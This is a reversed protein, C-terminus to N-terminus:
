DERLTLEVLVPKHDSGTESLVQASSTQITPSHLIYDIRMSPIAPRINVSPTRNAPWTFGFGFGASDFSDVLFSTLRRYDSSQENFNFDGALIVPNPENQLIEILRDIEQRRVQDDYFPFSLNSILSSQKMRVWPFTLHINYITIVAGDVNVSVKQQFVLGGDVLKFNAMNTLPYRSLIGMGIQKEDQLPGYVQYPYEDLLNQLHRDINEKTVEQLIVIDVNSQRILRDINDFDPLDQATNHSLIRLSSSNIAPHKGSPHPLFRHGFEVILFLAALMSWLSTAYNRKKISIPSILIVPFLGVPICNNLCAVLNLNDGFILRLLFYAVVIFGYLKLSAAMVNRKKSKSAM